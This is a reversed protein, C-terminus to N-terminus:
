KQLTEDLFTLMRDIGRTLNPGAWTHGEGALELLVVQGGLHRLHDAMARAQQVPVVADNTGHVLLFPPPSQPRRLLPSAQRYADLKERLPGGFLPLLNRTQVEDNLLEPATLDVPGAFSVVAQVRSSHDLLGATGELADQPSTMGLMAALHGGASLGVVGIRDPDIRFRAANARLWRVAMKCDELCAPWRHAPALRYDPAAAVYGRRALVDLTATMQKRSGGVWGGGHLCLVTPFPGEGQAPLHLDIRLSEGAPQAFLLDPQTRTTPAPDKAAVFAWLLCGLGGLSALGGLVGWRSSM